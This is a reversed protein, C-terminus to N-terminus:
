TSRAWLSKPPFCKPICWLADPLEWHDTTPSSICALFQTSCWQHYFPPPGVSHHLSATADDQNKSVSRVQSATLSSCCHTKSIKNGKGLQLIYALPVIKISTILLQSMAATLLWKQLSLETLGHVLRLFPSSHKAVAVKCGWLRSTKGSALRECDNPLHMVM